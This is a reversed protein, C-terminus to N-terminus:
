IKGSINDYKFSYTAGYNIDFQKTRNAAIIEIKLKTM